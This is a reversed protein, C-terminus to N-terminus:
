ALRRHLAHAAWLAQPWSRAAQQPCSFRQEQQHHGDERGDHDHCGRLPRRHRRSGQEATDGRPQRDAHSHEHEKREPHNTVLRAPYQRRHGLSARPASAQVATSTAGATAPTRAARRNVDPWASGGTAPGAEPNLARSPFANASDPAPVSPAASLSALIRWPTAAPSTAPRVPAM